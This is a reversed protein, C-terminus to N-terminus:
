FFVKSMSRKWNMLSIELDRQFKRPHLTWSVSWASHTKITWRWWRACFTLFFRTINKKCM